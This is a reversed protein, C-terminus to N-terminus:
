PLYAFNDIVVEVEHRIPNRNAFAYLNMHVAEGGPLPVGSTFAHEAATAGGSERLTQFSVRGPQWRFSVRLRGAPTSFRVVNAPIYYPQVVYQANKASPDGWRSIEIDMERHNADTTSDDWTFLGLVAAPDLQSVDRIEFSYSGYGLSRALAIEACTWEGLGRAIRLHLHGDADTWANTPDYNNTAGGRDSPVGRIEWEYGAFHLTRSVLLRSPEGKAMAVAIVPGGKQPLNETTEPPRYNPDVLLAAYDTGLHTSNQWDKGSRINTYPQDAFPQVWWLGTATKAYLVIQDGARAGEVHGEIIARAETGGDDARPLRSFEISPPMNPRTGGCGSLLALLAVSVPKWAHRSSNLPHAM